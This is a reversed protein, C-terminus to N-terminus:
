ADLREFAAELAEQSGDLLPYELSLKQLQARDIWHFESHETSLRPEFSEVRVLYYLFFLGYGDPLDRNLPYAVLLEPKATLPLPGIEEEVERLFTETSQEGAEM